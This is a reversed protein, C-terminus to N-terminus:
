KVIKKNVLAHIKDMGYKDIYYELM